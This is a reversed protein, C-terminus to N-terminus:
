EKPVVTTSVSTAVTSSSMPLTPPALPADTRLPASPEALNANALTGKPLEIEGGHIFQAFMGIVLATGLATKTRDSGVAGLKMGRLPIRKGDVELYRAALLLEGPKGGGRARDAHVVEGVGTAGAPVVLTGDISLPTVLTVAFQDGRKARASSLAEAIELEVPTGVALTCCADAHTSLQTASSPKQSADQASAHSALLVAVFAALGKHGM